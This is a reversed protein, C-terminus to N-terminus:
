KAPAAKALLWAAVARQESSGKKALAQLERRFAAAVHAEEGLEMLCRVKAEDLGGPVYRASLKRRAPDWAYEVSEKGAIVEVEPADEADESEKRLGLDVLIRQSPSFGYQYTVSIGGQTQRVTAKAHQNLDAVELQLSSEQVIELADLVQGDVLKFFRWTFLWVGSGREHLTRVYFTGDRLVHIRPEENLLYFYEEFAIVWEQNRRDLVYLETNAPDRGIVLLHETEPDEDLNATLIRLYADEDVATGAPLAKSPHARAFESVLAKADADPDRRLARELWGADVRGLAAGRGQDHHGPAAPQAAALLLAPILPLMRKRRSRWSESDAASEPDPM